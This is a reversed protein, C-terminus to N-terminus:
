RKLRALLLICLILGYWPAAGLGSKVQWGFHIIVLIAAPYVLTHLRKWNRGLKHQWHRTSTIGLLCLCILATAGAWIYPRKALESLLRALEFGTYFLDYSLVHLLAYGLAYLGFTRRLPLWQVSTFRQLPTICLTLLLLKLAWLGFGHVLTKGPDPGGHGLAAELLLWCAPLLPLASLLHRLHTPIVTRQM